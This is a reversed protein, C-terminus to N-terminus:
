HFRIPEDDTSPARCHIHTNPRPGWPWAQYATDQDTLPKVARFPWPAPQLGIRQQLIPAHTDEALEAEGSKIFRARRIDGNNPLAALLRLILAAIFM